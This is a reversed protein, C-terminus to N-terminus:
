RSYFSVILDEKIDQDIEEREPKRLVNGTGQEVNLWAPIEKPEKLIKQIFPNQFAKPSLTVKQRSKLEYSPVNVVREDVLVLGQTVFQRAQPRSKALGLKFVVNDLRMELRQLLGLGTPVEKNKVAEGYLNKFQRERIGYRYKVKQKELLQKGFESRPRAREFRKIIKTKPGTYRPM